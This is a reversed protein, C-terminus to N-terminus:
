WDNEHQAFDSLENDPNISQYHQKIQRLKISFEFSLIQQLQHIVTLQSAELGPSSLQQILRQTSIPIFHDYQVMSSQASM